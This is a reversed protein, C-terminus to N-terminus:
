FQPLKAVVAACRPCLGEADAQTSHKWCRPCKTGKAETVVVRVGAVPTEAGQAYDAADESVEVDSVIFLDAWQSEFAAKTLALNSEALPKDTALM